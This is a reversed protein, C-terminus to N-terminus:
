VLGTDTDNPITSCDNLSIPLPVQLADSLLLINLAADLFFHGRRARAVAKGCLMQRVTNGGYVIELAENLGTNQM